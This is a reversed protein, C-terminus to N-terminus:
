MVLFPATGIITQQLVGLGTWSHCYMDKFYIKLGTM